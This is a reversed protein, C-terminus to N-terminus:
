GSEERLLSVMMMLLLLLKHKDTLSGPWLFLSPFVLVDL